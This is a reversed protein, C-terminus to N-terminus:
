LGHVWLARIQHRPERTIGAPISKPGTEVVRGSNTYRLEGLQVWSIIISVVLRRSRIGQKPCSGQPQTWCHHGETNVFRRLGQGRENWLSIQVFCITHLYWGSVTVKLWSRTWSSKLLLSVCYPCPIWSGGSSRIYANTDLLLWTCELLHM